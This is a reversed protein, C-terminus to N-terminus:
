YELRRGLRGVTDNLRLLIDEQRHDKEWERRADQFRFRQEMRQQSGEIGKLRTDFREGAPCGRRVPPPREWPGNGRCGLDEYTDGEFLFPPDYTYSSTPQRLSPRRTATLLAQRGRAIGREFIELDEMRQEISRRREEGLGGRSREFMGYERETDWQGSSQKLQEKEKRFKKEGEKRGREVADRIERERKQDEVEKKLEMFERKMDECGEEKKQDKSMLSDVIMGQFLDDRRRYREIELSQEVLYQEYGWDM